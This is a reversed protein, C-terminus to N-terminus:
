LRDQMMRTHVGSIGRNAHKEFWEAPKGRRKKKRDKRRLYEREDQLRMWTNNYRALHHEEPLNDGPRLGKYNEYGASQQVVRYKGIKLIGKRTYHLVESTPFNDQDALIADLLAFTPHDKKKKDKGRLKYKVEGNCLQLAYDAKSWYAARLFTNERKHELDFPLKLGYLHWFAEVHQMALHDLNDPLKGNQILDPWNTIGALPALYRYRKPENWKDMQSLVSLGPNRPQKAMNNIFPVSTPDYIGGDTICQRLGLAKAVMWVGVRARATINNALITNGVPFHRCAIDGYFTNVCLKLLRDMGKARSREEETLSQNKSQHKWGKREDVLQGIFGELPIGYWARSRDDEVKTGGGEVPKSAYEGDDAMIAECWEKVGAKRDRKLYAAATIVELNLIQKREQKTATQLLTRLVDATIIGNVIQRRLLVLDSPIDSDEERTDYVGHRLGKRVGSEQLAVAKRIDEINVLKSYIIDQDFGLKGSVICIWLGDILQKENEKLWRGLTMPRRQENPAFSWVRPLGIPYIMSRLSAGYCGSIDIDLGPGLAYEDPRENNCRGGHVLANVCATETTSRSAFWRVSGGDLGTFDYKAKFFATLNANGLDDSRRYRKVAKCYVDRNTEYKRSQRSLIGLKHICFRQADRYDGAQTDIFREFTKAVLSGNTTPINEETWLDAENMGLCDKQIRRFFSVFTRYARLLLRADDVAYLLFDEPHELLGKWMCEKYQDMLGKSPMSHGLANLFEDLSSKDSWGFLDLVKVDCNRTTTINNRQHIKRDKITKELWEWCLAYELDKPSFFIVLRHKGDPLLRTRDDRQIYRVEVSIEAAKANLRAQVEDPVDERFFVVTRGDEWAFATSIWKGDINPDWESDTAVLPAPKPKHTRAIRRRSHLKSYNSKIQLPNEPVITSV